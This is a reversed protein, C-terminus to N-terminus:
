FWGRIREVWEDTFQGLAQSPRQLYEGAAAQLQEPNAALHEVEAWGNFPQALSWTPDDIECNPLRYHLAPRPKILEHEVPAAWVRERDIEAFLPLMDLPRNRTPNYELYDDILRTMAPQYDPQLILRGYNGPFPRIYPSLQRTLDINGAKVLAENLLVFAQLIATLWEATLSHAEINIQLGFAYLLSSQTGRAGKQQLDARVRDLRPLASLPLPPAVIEHPVLIGAADALWRELTEHDENDLEIGLARLHERYRRDQLIRADLEIVFEDFEPVKVRSRFPNHHEVRGGFEARVAEAMTTLDVGAMEIEIGVQRPRGTPGTTWPLPRFKLPM